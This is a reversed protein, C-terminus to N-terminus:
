PVVTKNSHFEGHAECKRNRQSRHTKHGRLVHGARVRQRTADILVAAGQQVAGVDVERGEFAVHGDHDVDRRESAFGHNVTRKSHGSKSRSRM